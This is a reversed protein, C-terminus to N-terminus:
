GGFGWLQIAENVGFIVTDITGDPGYTNAYLDGDEDIVTIQPPRLPYGPPPPVEHYLNLLSERTSGAGVWRDYFWLNRSEGYPRPILMVWAAGGFYPDNTRLLLDPWSAHYVWVDEGHYPENVLGVFTPPGLMDTLTAIMADRNYEGANFSTNLAQRVSSINYLNAVPIPSAPATYERTDTRRVNGVPPTYAGNISGKAKLGITVFPQKTPHPDFNFEPGANIETGFVGYVSGLYTATLWVTGGIDAKFDVHQIETRDLESLIGSGSGVRVGLRPNIIHTVSVSGSASAAVQGSIGFRVKQTWVFPVCLAGVPICAKITPLPFTGTQASFRCSTSGALSASFTATLQPQVTAQVWLDRTAISAEGEFDIGPLVFDIDASVSGAGSAECSASLSRRDGVRSATADPNGAARHDASSQVETTLPTSGVLRGRDILRLTENTFDISLKANPMVDYIFGPQMDIVKSGGAASVAAVRGIYGTPFLASPSLLTVDGVSVVRSSPVSVSAAGTTADESRKALVDAPSLVITGPALTGSAEGPEPFWGFVDAILHTSGVANFLSVKGGPGVKALVLNPVTQGAVFNLNSTEPRPVGTPWVTVYGTSTPGAVTVNLVVAGVGTAPIGGRGSIQLDIARGPGVIGRPGQGDATPGGRTDLLRSPTTPTFSTGAPFWGAVDVILHAKGASVALSVKGDSSVRAVVANAVTQSMAFNLNSTGPQAGDAPWVTAYGSASPQDVTVNLIVAAVGSTPVGGRGTVQLDLRAGGTVAGRSGGSDITPGGRTDMLRAPSLANYAGGVPFWGMVDVLVHARSSSFVNVGGAQGVKVIVLNPVTQGAAYNVNSAEPRNEDGPWVTVFGSTVPQDVTLNLVVAAAGSAPVGGRGAVRM